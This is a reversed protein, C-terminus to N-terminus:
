RTVWTAEFARRVAEADLTPARAFAELLARAAYYAHAADDDGATPAVLVWPHDSAKLDEGAVRPVVYPRRHRQAVAAQAAMRLPGPTALMAQVGQRFLAEAEREVGPMENFDDVITLRVPLRTGDALVLGGGANTEAVAREYGRRWADALATAGTLPLTAGLDIATPQASRACGAFLPLAFVVVRVLPAHPVAIASM